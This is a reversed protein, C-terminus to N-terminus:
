QTWKTMRNLNLFRRCDNLFERNWGARVIALKRQECRTAAPLARATKDAHVPVRAFAMGALLPDAVV